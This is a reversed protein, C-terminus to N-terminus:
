KSTNGALFEKEWMQPHMTILAREDATLKLYNKRGEFFMMFLDISFWRDLEEMKNGFAGEGYTVKICPTNDDDGGNPIIEVSLHGLGMEKLSDCVNEFVDQNVYKRKVLM